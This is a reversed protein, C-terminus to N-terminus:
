AATRHAWARRSAGASVPPWATSCQMRCRSARTTARRPGTCGLSVCSPVRVRAGDFLAQEVSFVFRVGDPGRRPMQAVQGTLVLDRGELASPLADALRVQARLATLAFAALALAIAMCLVRWVGRAWRWALAGAGLAAVLMAIQVAQPWLAPQHLQLASGGLWALAALVVAAARGQHSGPGDRLAAEGTM